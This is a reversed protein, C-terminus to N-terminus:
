GDSRRGGKTDSECYNDDRTLIRIDERDQEAKSGRSGRELARKKVAILQEKSIIKLRFVGHPVAISDPEIDDFKLSEVSALLDVYFLELPVKPNPKTAFHDVIRQSKTTGMGLGQLAKRLRELNAPSTRVVVDLDPAFRMYGYSRVAYGGVVVFEVEHDNLANLFRLEERQFFKLHHRQM